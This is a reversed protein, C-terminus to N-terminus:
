LLLLPKDIHKFVNDLTSWHHTKEAASSLKRKSMIVLDIDHTDVYGLISESALPSKIIKSTTKVGHKSAHNFLENHETVAFRKESEYERKNTKTKFFGFTQREEICTLITIKAGFTEALKLAKKFSKKSEPTGNYPM